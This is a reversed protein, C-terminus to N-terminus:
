EFLARMTIGITKNHKKSTCHKKLASPSTLSLECYDCYYKKSLRTAENRKFRQENIKVANLKNYNKYKLKLQEKNNNYYVVSYVKHYESRYRAEKKEAETEYVQDESFRKWTRVDERKNETRGTVNNTNLTPKLDEMYKQELEKQIKMDTFPQTHLPECIFNQIGIEKMYRYLKSKKNKHANKHETWRYKLKKCTSGIYFYEPNTTDHIKYITSIM